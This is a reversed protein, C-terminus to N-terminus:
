ATKRFRSLAVGLIVVTIVIVISFQYIDLFSKRKAEAMGNILRELREAMKVGSFEVKVREVGAKGMSKVDKESM